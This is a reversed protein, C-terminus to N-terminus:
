EGEAEPDPPTEGGISPPLRADARRSMARLMEEKDCKAPDTGDLRFGSEDLGAAKRKAVIKDAYIGLRNGMPKSEYVM